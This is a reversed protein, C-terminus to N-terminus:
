RSKWYKNAIIFYSKYAFHNQLHAIQIQLFVLPNEKSARKKEDVEVPDPLSQQM